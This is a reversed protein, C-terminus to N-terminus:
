ANRLYELGNLILELGWDFENAYEYGPRMAHEGIFEALSPTRM